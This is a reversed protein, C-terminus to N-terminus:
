RRSDQDEPFREQHLLTRNKNTQRNQKQNKLMKEVLSATYWDLVAGLNFPVKSIIFYRYVIVSSLGSANACMSLRLVQGDKRSLCYYNCSIDTM